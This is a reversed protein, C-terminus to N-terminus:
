MIYFATMYEPIDNERIVKAIVTVRIKTEEGIMDILVVRDDQSCKKVLGIMKLQEPELGNIWNFLINKNRRYKLVLTRYMDRLQTYDGLIDQIEYLFLSYNLTTPQNM